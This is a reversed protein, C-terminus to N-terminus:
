ACSERTSTLGLSLYAIISSFLSTLTVFLFSRTAGRLQDGESGPLFRDHDASGALERDVLVLGSLGRQEADVMGTGPHMRCRGSRMCPTPPCANAPASRHPGGSGAQVNRHLSEPTKPSNKRPLDMPAN